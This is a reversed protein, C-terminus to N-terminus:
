FSFAAFLAAKEILHGIMVRHYNKDWSHTTADTERQTEAL